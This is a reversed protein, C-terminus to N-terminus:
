SFVEGLVYPTHVTFEGRSVLAARTNLEGLQQLEGFTGRLDAAIATSVAKRKQAAKYTRLQKVKTTTLSVAREERLYKLINRISKERWDSASVLNVLEAPAGWEPYSIRPSMQDVFYTNTAATSASLYWGLALPWLTSTVIQTSSTFRPSVKCMAGANGVTIPNFAATALVQFESGTNDTEVLWSDSATCGTIKISIPAELLTGNLYTLTPLFVAGRVLLDGGMEVAGNFTSAGRMLMTGLMEAPGEFTTAGSFEADVFTAARRVLLDGVMEVQGGFTAAGRMLITGMMEAPSEFTAAGRVVLSSLVAKSRVVLNTVDASDNVRVAHVEAVQAYANAFKRAYPRLVTYM